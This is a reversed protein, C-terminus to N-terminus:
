RDDASVVERRPCGFSLTWHGGDPAHAMARRVIAATTIGMQSVFHLSVTAHSCEHWHGHSSGADQFATPVKNGYHLCTKSAPSQRDSLASFFRDWQHGPPRIIKRSSSSWFLDVSLEGSAARALKTQCFSGLQRYCNESGESSILLCSVHKSYYHARAGVNPRERAPLIGTSLHMGIEWRPAVPRAGMIRCRRKGNVAPARCFAGRRNRAGCRRSALMPETKRKHASRM